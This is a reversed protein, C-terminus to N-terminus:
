SAVPAADKTKPEIPTKTVQGKRIITRKLICSKIILQTNGIEKDEQMTPLCAAILIAKEDEMLLWGISLVAPPTLDMDRTWGETTKHDEWEVCVLPYNVKKM